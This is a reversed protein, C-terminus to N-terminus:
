HHYLDPEAYEPRLRGNGNGNVNRYIRPLDLNYIHDYEDGYDHGHGHTQDQRYERNYRRQAPGGRDAAATTFPVNVSARPRSQSQSQSQAGSVYIRGRSGSHYYQQDLKDRDGDHDRHYDREREHTRPQRVRTHEDQLALHHRIAVDRPPHPDYNYHERSNTEGPYYLLVADDGEPSGRAPQFDNSDFGPTSHSIVLPRTRRSESPSHTYHYPRPHSDEILRETRPQHTNYSHEASQQLPREGRTGYAVSTNRHYRGDPQAHASRYGVHPPAYQDASSGPSLYDEHEVEIPPSDLEFIYDEVTPSVYVTKSRRRPISSAPQLISPRLKHASTTPIDLSIRPRSKSVPQSHANAYGSDCRKGHGKQTKYHVDGVDIVDGEHIDGDPSGVVVFPDYDGALTDPSFEGDVLDQDAGGLNTNAFQTEIGLDALAQSNSRNKNKTTRHTPGTHNAGDVPGDAVVGTSPLRPIPPPLGHREDIPNGHLDLPRGHPSFVPTVAFPDDDVFPQSYHAQKHSASSTPSESYAGSRISAPDYAASARSNRHDTQAASHHISSSVFSSRKPGDSVYSKSRPKSVKDRKVIISFARVDAQRNPVQVINDKITVISWDDDPSGTTYLQAMLADIADRRGESMGRIRASISPKTKSPKEIRDKIEAEALSLESFEAGDKWQAGTKRFNFM